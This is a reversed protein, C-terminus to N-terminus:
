KFYIKKNKVSLTFNNKKNTSQKLIIDSLPNEINKTIQRRIERAGFRPNYSITSIFDTVNNDIKLDVGKNQLRTILESLRLEVIKKIDEKTLPNFIIIEDLRNILEPKFEKKLDNLVNKKILEFSKKANKTKNFGIAEKDLDHQGINSTLIIITNRFNILRNKSDTLYGDELIQLLINFVEPHAKEIEDFLIVSYPNTRIKETLKNNDEYGVYGPPAGILKSLNHKEMYESMDLKILANDRQFVKQAILKALETKGVGTPGLFIFTGIPRNPNSIHAKSRKISNVINTIAQNQGILLKKLDPELNLLEKGDQQILSNLPIGTWISVIKAIDEDNISLHARHKDSKKELSEIKKILKKASLKLKAALGYNEEKVAKEIKRETINLKQRITVTLNNTKNSSKNSIQKAACAEDILDIAKDPLFRDTIYRSSLKVATEIAKDEISVEHFSEYNKKIGSLIQLSEEKSPENVKITQFRRELAKDKEIHKTYEDITTAGILQIQGKALSPKLINAADISGEASGAGIVTHIEDIFVIINKNKIIEQVIKKIRDEFQGRYMTGAVTLGLDLSILRKSILQKPVNNKAIRQALGEIIATKGVGPEGILIPNNKSRRCLIQITRLIEDNRGIMQDLLNKSALKTLDTGYQDLLPTKSNNKPNKQIGPMNPMFFDFAPHNPLNADPLHKLNQDIYQNVDTFEDFIEELERALDENNIGIRSIIEYARCTKTQTIAWLIHESEISQQNLDETKKAALALIEKAEKSLGNQLNTKVNNLSIILKVQDLNIANEKLLDYTLNGSTATMSLLFHETGIGSNMNQAIRQSAVLVQRASKGFKKFIDKPDLM